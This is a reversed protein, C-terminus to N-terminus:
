AFADYYGLRKGINIQRIKAHKLYPSDYIRENLLHIEDIEPNECNEVLVDRLERNREENPSIYFQTIMVIKNYRRVIPKLTLKNSEITSYITHYRCDDWHYSRDENHGVDLWHKEFQERTKLGYLLLDHNHERYVYWHFDAPLQPNKVNKKIKNMLQIAQHQRHFIATKNYSSM